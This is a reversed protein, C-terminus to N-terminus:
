GSGLSQSFFVAIDQNQFYRDNFGCFTFGMQQCFTIGPFNKTQLEISLLTLRREKAWRRAVNLLRSGIGNRRFPRSVVLDHVLAIRHTPDGRMTLYGIVEQTDRNLAVLFCHEEPLALRLRREDVPYAVEMTRPLHETKFTMQWLGVEEFVSMQWVYETEYQHDLSLCADIDSDLGDRILFGFTTSM